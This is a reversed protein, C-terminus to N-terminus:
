NNGRGKAQKPESVLSFQLAVLGLFVVFAVSGYIALLSVEVDFLNAFVDTIIYFLSLVADYLPSLFSAFSHAGAHYFLTIIQGGFAGIVMVMLIAFALAAVGVYILLNSIKPVAKQTEYIGLTAVRSMVNHVFHEPASLEEFKEFGQLMDTYAEFEEKCAACKAIHQNLTAFEGDTLENDMYKMMLGSYKECAM